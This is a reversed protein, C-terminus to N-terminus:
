VYLAISAKRPALIISYNNQLLPEELLFIKIDFFKSSTGIQINQSV